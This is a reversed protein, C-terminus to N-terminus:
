EKMQLINQPFGLKYLTGATYKYENEELWQIANSKYDPEDAYIWIDPHYGFWCGTINHLEILQYETPKCEIMEKVMAPVDIPKGLRYCAENTIVLEYMDLLKDFNNSKKIIEEDIGTILSLRWRAHESIYSNSHRRLNWLEYASNRNGLYYLADLASIRIEENRESIAKKLRTFIGPGSFFNLYQIAHVKVDFAKDKSLKLV